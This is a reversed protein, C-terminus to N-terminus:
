NWFKKSSDLEGFKDLVIKKDRFFRDIQVQYYIEEGARVLEFDEVDKEPFLREISQTVASPLEKLTIEIKERLLNGQLSVLAKREKDEQEFEIEYKGDIERFEVEKAQPFEAWFHNLVVSPIDAYPYDDNDCSALTFCLFIVLFSRLLM